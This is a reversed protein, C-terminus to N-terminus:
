KSWAATETGGGLINLAEDTLREESKEKEPLDSTLLEIIMNSDEMDSKM